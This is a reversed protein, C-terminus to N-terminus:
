VKNFTSTLQILQRAFDKCKKIYLIMDDAFFLTKVEEM